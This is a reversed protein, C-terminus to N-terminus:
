TAGTNNRKKWQSLSVCACTVVILLLIGIIILELLFSRDLADNPCIEPLSPCLTTEDLWFRRGLRKLRQRCISYETTARAGEKGGALPKAPSYFCLALGSNIDPRRWLNKQPFFMTTFFAFDCGPELKEIKIACAM